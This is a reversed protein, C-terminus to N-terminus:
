RDAETFFHPVATSQEAAAAQKSAPQLSEAGFRAVADLSEVIQPSMTREEELVRMYLCDFAKALKTRTNRQSRVCGNGAYQRVVAM